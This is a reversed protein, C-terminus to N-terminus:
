SFLPLSVDVGPGHLATTFPGCGFACVSIALATWQIMINSQLNQLGTGVRIFISVDNENWVLSPSLEAAEWVGSPPEYDPTVSVRHPRLSQQATSLPSLEAAERVGSPPEYDPIASVRHSYAKSPLPCLLHGRQQSALGSVDSLGLQKHQYGPLSFPFSRRYFCKVAYAQVCEEKRSM